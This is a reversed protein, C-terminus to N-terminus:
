VDKNSEHVEGCWCRQPTAELTKLLEPIADEYYKALAHIHEPMVCLFEPEGPGYLWRLFRFKLTGSTVVFEDGIPLYFLIRRIAEKFTEMLHLTRM